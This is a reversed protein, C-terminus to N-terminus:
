ESIVNVVSAISGKMNISRAKFFFVLARLSSWVANTLASGTVTAPKGLRVLQEISRFLILWGKAVGQTM